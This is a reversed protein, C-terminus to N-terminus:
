RASSLALLDRAVRARDNRRDMWWGADAVMAGAQMAAVYKAYLATGEPGTNAAAALERMAQDRAERGAAIQTDSAGTMPAAVAADYAAKTPTTTM